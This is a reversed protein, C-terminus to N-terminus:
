LGFFGKRSATHAIGHEECYKWTYSDKSCHVTLSPCNSFANEGISRVSDPISIKKISECFDFAREGISEVGKHLIIENLNSCGFFSFAELTTIYKPVTYKGSRGAPCTILTKKDSSLLVGDASTYNKNGSAVDIRRLSKCAGFARSGIVKVNEPVSVTVLSDCRYFANNGISVLERPLKIDTLSTCKQFAWAGVSTINEPMILKKLNEHEKFTHSGIATVPRSLYSPKIEVRSESGTYKTLTIGEQSVSYEFNPITPARNGRCGNKELYNAITALIDDTTHTWSCLGQLSGQHLAIDKPLSCEKLWCIIRKEPSSLRLEKMARGETYSPTLFAIFHRCNHIDAACDLGDRCLEDYRISYGMDHLRTMVPFVIDKDEHAYSCYVFPSDADCRFPIAAPATEKSLEKIRVNMKNRKAFKYIYSDQSCVITFKPSSGFAGSIIKIVSDPIVVESLSECKEFVGHGLTTIGEPVTVSRIRDNGSFTGKLETVSVGMLLSPIVVNKERGKYKRLRISGSVTYESEYEDNPEPPPIPGIEIGVAKRKGSPTLSGSSIVADYVESVAVRPYANRNSTRLSIGDSLAANRDLMCFVIPRNMEIAYTLENEVYKRAVSNNSVFALVVACNKVHSAIVDDYKSAIEIGQDYWIHLGKEYLEKIVPFVRERDAHAYSIFIYPREEEARFPVSISAASFDSQNSM